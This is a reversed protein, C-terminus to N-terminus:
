VLMRLVLYPILNFVLVILKFLGMGGYHFADFTEKSLSFWKSHIRYIADHAMLFALYWVILIALNFLSCWALVQRVFEVTM